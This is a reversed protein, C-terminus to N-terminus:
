KNTDLAKQRDDRLDLPETECKAFFDQMEQKGVDDLADYAISLWGILKYAAITLSNTKDKDEDQEVGSLLNEIAKIDDADLTQNPPNVLAVAEDIQKQARKDDLNIPETM